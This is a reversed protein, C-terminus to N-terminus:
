KTAWTSSRATRGRHPWVIRGCSAAVRQACATMTQAYRDIRGKAFLQAVLKRRRRWADGEARLLGEGLLPKAYVRLGPSKAVKKADTVLLQHVCAPDCTFAIWRTAIRIRGIEGCERHIDLM